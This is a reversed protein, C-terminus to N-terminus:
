AWTARHLERRSSPLSPPPLAHTAHWARGVQRALPRLAHSDRVFARRFWAGARDAARSPPLCALTMIACQASTISRRGSTPWARHVGAHPCLLRGASSTRRSRPRLWASHGGAAPPSRPSTRLSRTSSFSSDRRGPQVYSRRRHSSLDFQLADPLLVRPVHDAGSRPRRAPRADSSRPSRHADKDGKLAAFSVGGIVSLALCVLPGAVVSRRMTM